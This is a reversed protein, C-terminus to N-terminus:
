AELENVTSHSFKIESMPSSGQLTGKSWGLGRRVRIIILQPAISQIHPLLPIFLLEATNGKGYLIVLILSVVAYPLASEIVMAAVGTYITLQEPEAFMAVQRRALWLRTVILLTVLMNLSLSLAWYPLGFRVANQAFLSSAPRSAAITRLVSMVTSAILAMIPIVVVMWNSNWIIYCRYILLSDVMFTIINAAADGAADGKVILVNATGIFLGPGGPYNREDIWALQTNHINIATNASSLIFLLTIYIQVPWSIKKAKVVYYTCIAFITAHIGTRPRDGISVAAHLFREMWILANPEVTSWSPSSTIGTSSM